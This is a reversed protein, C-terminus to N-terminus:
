RNKDIYEALYKFTLHRGVVDEKLSIIFSDSKALYAGWVRNVDHTLKVYDSYSKHVSIMMREMGFSRGKSTFIINEHKSLFTALKNMTEERNRTLEENAKPTWSYFGFAM